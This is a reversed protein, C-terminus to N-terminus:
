WKKRWPRPKRWCPSTPTVESLRKRAAAVEAEDVAKGKERSINQNIIFIEDGIEPWNRASQKFHHPGWQAEVIRREYRDRFIHFYSFAESPDWRPVNDKTAHIPFPCQTPDGQQSLLFNVLADFQAPTPPYLTKPGQILTGQLWM